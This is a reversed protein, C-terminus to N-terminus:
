RPGDEIIQEPNLRPTHPPGQHEPDARGLRLVLFPQATGALMGRLIRRTGTVEIAGSLPLVGIGLETAALWVASLAEGARLWDLPNDADGYLIAYAAASDHTTSGAALEGPHGFDRGPVVTDPRSVPIVTDPIGTGDSRQGGSWYGMEARWAPDASETRQARDAAAALAIVQDRRLRHLWAGYGRAAQAVQDFEAAEVPDDSVPRRDTHRVAITQLLRMAAPTVPIRELIRVRALLNPEDDDPIREVYERLGQAALAVRAHHLATGCSLIALRRDPDTVGLLRGPELLLELTGHGLRWRWPQTNHISPASGAAVAAEALAETALRLDPATGSPPAPTVSM